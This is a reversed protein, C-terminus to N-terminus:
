YSTGKRCVAHREAAVYYTFERDHCRPYQNTNTKM